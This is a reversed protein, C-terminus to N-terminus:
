DATLGYYTGFAAAGVAAGGLVLWGVPGSALGLFIGLGGAGAGGILGGIGCAASTAVPDAGGNVMEMENISLEMAKTNM